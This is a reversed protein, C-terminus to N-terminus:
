GRLRRAQTSRIANATTQRTARKAPSKLLRAKDSHLRILGKVQLDEYEHINQKVLEDVVGRWIQHTATV